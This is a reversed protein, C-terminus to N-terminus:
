ECDCTQFEEQSNSVNFEIGCQICRFWLLRGLAGLIAGQGDCVPCSVENSDFM